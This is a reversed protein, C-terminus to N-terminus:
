LFLLLKATRQQVFSLFLLTAEATEGVETGGCCMCFALTVMRKTGLDSM